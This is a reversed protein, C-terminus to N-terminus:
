PHRCQQRGPSRPVTGSEVFEYGEYLCLKALKGAAVEPALTRAVHKLCGREDVFRENAQQVPVVDTPLVTSM